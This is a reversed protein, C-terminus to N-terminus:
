ESSKVVRHVEQGLETLSITWSLPICAEIRAALKTAPDFGVALWLARMAAIAVLTPNTDIDMGRIRTVVFGGGCEALRRGLSAGFAAGERWDPYTSDIADPAVTAGPPVAPDYRVWAAAFHGRGAVQRAVRGEFEPAKDQGM